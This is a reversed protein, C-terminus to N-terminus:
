RKIGLEKESLIVFKWGRERCFVEAAQWKLVNQVYTINERLAKKANKSQSPKSEKSPKIEIMSVSKKGSPDVSEIVFDPFYRRVRPPDYRTDVYPVIVEESSWKTVSPNSDFELMVRLEWGSRYVINRVNKGVYKEPNKPRFFGQKYGKRPRLRTNTEYTM